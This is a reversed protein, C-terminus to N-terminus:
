IATYRLVCFEYCPRQGDTLHRHVAWRACDDSQGFHAVYCTSCKAFIFWSVNWLIIFLNTEFLDIFLAYAVHYVMNWSHLWVSIPFWFNQLVSTGFDWLSVNPFSYNHWRIVTLMTLYSVSHILCTQRLFFCSPTPKLYWIAVKGM